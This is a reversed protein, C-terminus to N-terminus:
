EVTLNYTVNLGFVVEGELVFAGEFQVQHQGVSLPELMVWYGDTVGFYGGEEPDELEWVNDEPLFFHYAPSQARFEALNRANKVTKGDVRVGLTGVDILNAWFSATERQAAETPEFFDGPVSDNAVNVIPFFLYRGAPVVCDDRVVDFVVPTDPVEDSAAGVLHFVPASAQGVACKEGTNDVFPNDDIPISQVWQQWAAGWDGYTMGIVVKDPPVAAARPGTSQGAFSNLTAIGLVVFLSAAISSHLWSRTTKVVAGKIAAQM